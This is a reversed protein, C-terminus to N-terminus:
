YHKDSFKWSATVVDRSLIGNGTGFESNITYPRGDAEYTKSKSSYYDPHRGPLCFAVMFGIVAKCINLSVM